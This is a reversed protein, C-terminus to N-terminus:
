RQHCNVLSLKVFSVTKLKWWYEKKKKFPTGKPTNVFFPYFTQHRPDSEFRCPTVVALNQTEHTQWKAVGANKVWGENCKPRTGMLLFQFHTLPVGVFIDEANHDDKHNM